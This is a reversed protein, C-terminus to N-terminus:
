PDASASRATAQAEAFDFLSPGSGAYGEIALLRLKSAAGGPASFDGTRGGAALVRHCPVVIPVPNRGLAQGVARAAGPEGIAAAVEGYTMARGPPISRAVVYVKRHFDPAARLDVPIFCLDVRQGLLLRQIADVAGALWAPSHEYTSDGQPLSGGPLWLKSIGRDTWALACEGIATEFVLRNTM